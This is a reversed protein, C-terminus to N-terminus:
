DSQEDALFITICPSADDNPGIVARLRARVPRRVAGDPPTALVTYVVSSASGDRRAAARVALSGMWLVDWLRGQEDQLTRKRANLADDWEVCRTWVARSLAVPYRFGAEIAVASVDVLTGDDILQARTVAHIVDEPGFM